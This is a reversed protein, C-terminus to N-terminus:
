SYRREILKELIQNKKAERVAELQSEELGNFDQAVLLAELYLTLQRKIYTKNEENKEKLNGGLVALAFAEPNLTLEDKKM